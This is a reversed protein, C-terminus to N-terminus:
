NVEQSLKSFTQRFSTFLTEKMLTITLTTGSMKQVQSFGIESLGSKAPLRMLLSKLAHRPELTGLFVNVKNWLGVCVNSWFGKLDTATPRGQRQDLMGAITAEQEGSYLDFPAYVTLTCAM